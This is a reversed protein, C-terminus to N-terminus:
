PRSVKKSHNASAKHALLDLKTRASNSRIYQVVLALYEDVLGMLNGPSESAVFQDKETPYMIAPSKRTRGSSDYAIGQLVRPKKAHTIEYDRYDSIERKIVTLLELLRSPPPSLQKIGAYKRLCKTLGDHSELSCRSAQGFYFELAHAVRDLLMKAFLYFSDIELELALKLKWGEDHLREQNPTVPHTGPKLTAVMAKTNEIFVRSASDYRALIILLNRYLKTIQSFSQAFMNNHKTAFRKRESQIFAVMQKLIEKEM